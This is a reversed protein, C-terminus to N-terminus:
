TTDTRQKKNGSKRRSRRRKKQNSPTQEENNSISQDNNDTCKTQEVIEEVNNEEEANPDTTQNVLAGYYVTMMKLRDNLYTEEVEVAENKNHRKQQQKAKRALDTLQLISTQRPLLFAINSTLARSVEFLAEGSPTM